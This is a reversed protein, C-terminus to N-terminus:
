PAGGADQDLAARASALPAAYPHDAPLSRALSEFLFAAAEAEGANALARALQWRHALPADPLRAAERALALAAEPQNNAELARARYYLLAGSESVPLHRAAESLLREAEDPAGAEFWAGGLDALVPALRADPLAMARVRGELTRVLSQYVSADAEMRAGGPVTALAQLLAASADELLAFDSGALAAAMRGIVEPAHDGPIRSAMAPLAAGREGEEVFRLWAGWIALPEPNRELVGELVARPVDLVGPEFPAEAIRAAWIAPAEADAEAGALQHILAQRYRAPWGGGARFAADRFHDWYAPIGPAQAVARAGAAAAQEWATLRAYASALAANVNVDTSAGLRRAPEFAEAAARWGEAAGSDEARRYAVWGIMEWAEALEPVRDLAIRAAKEAAALAAEREAGTRRAALRIHARAYQVHLRPLDPFLTLAREYAALAAEVHGRALAADGALMPIRFDWPTHRAAAALYASAARASQEAADGHGAARQEREWAIAGRARQQLTEAQFQGTIGFAVVLALVAVLPPLVRRYGRLAGGSPGAHQVAIVFFLAASAPAHLNFGACADAAIAVVAAPAAVLLARERAAGFRPHTFAGAVAALFLAILAALGPLGSEAAAELWENHAHFNRRNELAYWLSEFDTWRGVAHIAYGGPGVGTWPHDLFIAAAGRYGHLRLQLASDISLRPTLVVAALAAIVLAFVAGTLARLGARAPAVGRASFFVYIATFLGAVSLAALGGRMGSAYLHWLLLAGAVGYLALASVRRRRGWADAVLGACLVIAVVITHGALNPNGYTAPLGRYEEVSRDSWPFPDLGWWQALGYLSSLATAAVIARFLLRLHRPEPFSQHIVFALLGFVCWPLTAAYGRAPAESLLAAGLQTALFVLMLILAANPPRVPVQGRAAGVAWIVSLVVAAVASVLIKIPAAPDETYPYLALVILFVWVVALGRIWRFYRNDPGPAIM